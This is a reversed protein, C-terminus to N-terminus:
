VQQFLVSNEYALRAVRVKAGESNFKHALKGITTTKGGGNVGVVLIVSPQTEGLQLDTNGGRTQLLELISQKLQSRIQAGNQLKGDELKSRIKDVVKLSTRPGFDAAQLPLICTISVHKLHTQAANCCHFAHRISVHKHQTQHIKWHHLTESALVSIFSLSLTFNCYAVAEPARYKGDTLAAAPLARLASHSSILIFVTTQCSQM